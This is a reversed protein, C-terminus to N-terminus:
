KVMIAFKGISSLNAVKAVESKEADIIIIIGKFRDSLKTSQCKPCIKGKDIILRCNKCAYM